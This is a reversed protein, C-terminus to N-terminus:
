APGEVVPITDLDKELEVFCMDDPLVLDKFHERPFPTEEGTKRYGRRIYWLILNQRTSLANLGLRTIGWTKQSYDEAYAVVQRGVGGRQYQQDVALMFLRGLDAAKKSVGISAVLTANHDTAMLFASDPNTIIALIEKVEISFRSNLEEDATWEQRSDEARFASQVLQQVQGADDPTAIRFNLSGDTM